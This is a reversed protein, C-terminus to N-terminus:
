KAKVKNCHCIVLRGKQAFSCDKLIAESDFCCSDESIHIYVCEEKPMIGVGVGKWKSQRKAKSQVKALTAVTTLSNNKTAARYSFLKQLVTTFCTGLGKDNRQKEYGKLVQRTVKITMSQTDNQSM